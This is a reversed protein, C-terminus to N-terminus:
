RGAAWGGAWGGPTWWGGPQRWGGHEEALEAGAAVQEDELVQVEAELAEPFPGTVETQVEQDVLGEQLRLARLCREVAQSGVIPVSLGRRAQACAVALSAWFGANSGTFLAHPWFAPDPWADSARPGEIRIVAVPPDSAPPPVRGDVGFQLPQPANFQPGKGGGKGEVWPAPEHPGHISATASGGPGQAMAAGKVSFYSCSAKPLGRPGTASRWHARPRFVSDCLAVGPMHLHATTWAHTPQAGPHWRVTTM